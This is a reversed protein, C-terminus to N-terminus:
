GQRSAEYQHEEAGQEVGPTPETADDWITELVVWQAPDARLRRELRELFEMEGARVDAEFDGTRVLKLPEEMYAEITYNGRRESFSPVVTAGTRLAVEIPGTPMWAEQGFFPLRMKPGHIDRDAMLAVVGGSRLTKIVRKVNAIGVPAFSLGQSSRAKDLFESLQPPELPETLAFVRVGVHVLGQGAIEPNGYHASMMIVGKGEEVAPLLIENLGHIEMRENFLKHPDTYPMRALDVYYLAVNRFIQRAMRRMERKRTGEPVVHRLNEWVNHRKGAALAYCLDGVFPFIWYLMRTPLRGITNFTVVFFLYRLM